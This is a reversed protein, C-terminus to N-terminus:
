FEFTYGERMFFIQQSEKEEPSLEIRSYKGDESNWLWVQPMTPDGFYGTTYMIGLYM